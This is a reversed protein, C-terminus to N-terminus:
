PKVFEDKHQVVHDAYIICMVENAFGHAALYTAALGYM